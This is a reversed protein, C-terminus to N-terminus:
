KNVLHGDQWRWSVIFTRVTPKRLEVSVVDAFNKGDKEVGGRLADQLAQPFLIKQQFDEVSLGYLKDTAKPLLAANASKLATSVIDRASQAYMDYSHQSRMYAELIRTAIANELVGKRVESTESASLAPQGAATRRVNEYRTVANATTSFDHYWIVEREVLAVPFVGLAFFAAAIAGIGIVIGLIRKKIHM